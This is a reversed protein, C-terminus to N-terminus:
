PLNEPNWAVHSRENLDDLREMEKATLEFDFVAANEQIREPKVSKPIVVLGHQLSWRILVQAPTRKHQAAIARIIPHDM